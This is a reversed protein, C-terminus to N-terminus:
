EVSNNTYMQINTICEDSTAEVVRIRTLIYYKQENNISELKLRKQCCTNYINIVQVNQNLLSM